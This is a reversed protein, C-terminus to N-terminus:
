LTSQSESMNPIWIIATTGVRPMSYLDIKGGLRELQTKVIYLGMGIGHNEPNATKFLEFIRSQYEPKIGPGKDTISIQIGNNVSEAEIKLLATGDTLHKQFKFANEILHQLISTVAVKVSNLEDIVRCSTEYQYPITGFGQDNEVQAVVQELLEQLNIREIEFNYNGLKPFEVLDVLTDNLKQSITKIHNFYEKYEEISTNENVINTLGLITALPGKLHHSASYLFSELEDNKIKLQLEVQKIPTQDKIIFLYAEDSNKETNIALAIIKAPFSKISKGFSCEFESLKGEGKLTQIWSPQQDSIILQKLEKPISKFQDTYNIFRNNKRIINLKEDTTIVLEPISDLLSDLITSSIQSKKLELSLLSIGSLITNVKERKTDISYNIEFNGKNLQEILNQILEIDSSEKKVQKGM